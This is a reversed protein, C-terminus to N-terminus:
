ILRDNKPYNAKFCRTLIQKLFFTVAKRQNVDVLNLKRREVIVHLDCLIPLQQLSESLSGAICGNLGEETGIRNKWSLFNLNRCKSGKSQLPEEM